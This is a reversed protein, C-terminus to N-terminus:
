VARQEQKVPQNYCAPLFIVLLGPPALPSALLIEERNQRLRRKGALNGGLLGTIFLRAFHVSGFCVIWVIM